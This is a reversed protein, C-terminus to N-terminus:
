VSPTVSASSAFPSSNPGSRIISHTCVLAGSPAGAIIVRIMSSSRAKTPACGCFSSMVKIAMRLVHSFNRDVFWFRLFFIRSRWGSLVRLRLVIGVTQLRVEIPEAIERESALGVELIVFLASGAFFLFRDFVGVARQELFQDGDDIVELETQFGRAGFALLRRDKGSHAHHELLEHIKERVATELRDVRGPSFEIRVQM